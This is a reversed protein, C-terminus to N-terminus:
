SPLFMKWRETWTTQEVANQVTGGQHNYLSDANQVPRKILQNVRHAGINCSSRRAGTNVCSCRKRARTKLGLRRVHSALWSSMKSVERLVISASMRSLRLLRPRSALQMPVCLRGSSSRQMINSHRTSKLSSRRELDLTLFRTDANHTQLLHYRTADVFALIQLPISKSM